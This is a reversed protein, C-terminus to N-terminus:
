DIAPPMNTLIPINVMENVNKGLVYDFHNFKPDAILYSMKVNPLQQELWLTDEPTTILDGTSYFIYVPVTVASLDYTPPKSSGYRELNEEEGYDYAQFTEFGLPLYPASFKLVSRM